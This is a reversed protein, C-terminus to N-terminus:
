SSGSGPAARPTLHTENHCLTVPEEYEYATRHVIRYRM